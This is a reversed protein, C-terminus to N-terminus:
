LIGLEKLKLYNERTVAYKKKEWCSWTGPAVNILKAAEKIKINNNKRYNFLKIHYNETDELYLDYFYKTSLKFYKSLNMSTEADPYKRSTEIDKINRGYGLGIRKALQDQSLNELMRHYKLWYSIGKNELSCEFQSLEYNKICITYKKWFTATEYVLCSRINHFSSLKSHTPLCPKIKKVRM